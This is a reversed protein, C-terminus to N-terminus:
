TKGASLDRLATSWTYANGILRHLLPGEDESHGCLVNDMTRAGAVAVRQLTLFQQQKMVGAPSQQTRSIEEILFAGNGDLYEVDRDNRPLPWSAATAPPLGFAQAVQESRLVQESRDFMGETQRRAADVVGGSLTSLHARFHRAADVFAQRLMPEGTNFVRESYAIAAARLAASVEHFPSGRDSSPKKESGGFLPTFIAARQASNPWDPESGTRTRLETLIASLDAPVARYHRYRKPYDESIGIALDIVCDLTWRAYGSAISSLPLPKQDGTAPASM